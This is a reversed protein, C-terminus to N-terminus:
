GSGRSRDIERQIDDETIPKPRGYAAYAGAGLAILLGAMPFVPWVFGAGTAAWIIWLVAIIAVFMAAQKPFARRQEVRKIADSRLEQDEMAM